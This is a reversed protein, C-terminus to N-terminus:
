LALIAQGQLLISNKPLKAGFSNFESGQERWFLNEM